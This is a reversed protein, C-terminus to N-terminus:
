KLTLYKLFTDLQSGRSKSVHQNHFMIQQVHSM